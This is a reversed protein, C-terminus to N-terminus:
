PDAEQLNERFEIERILSDWEGCGSKTAQMCASNKRVTAVVGHEDISAELDLHKKQSLPSDQRKLKTRQLEDVVGRM